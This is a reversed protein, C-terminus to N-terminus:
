FGRRNVGLSRGDAPSRRPFWKRIWWPGCPRIPGSTPGYRECPALGGALGTPRLRSSQGLQERSSAGIAVNGWQQGGAGAGQGDRPQSQGRARTPGPGAGSRARAACRRRGDAGAVRGDGRGAVADRDRGLLRREQAGAEGHGAGDRCGSGAVRDLDILEPRADVRGPHRHRGRGGLGAAREGRGPPRAMGTLHRDSRRDLPGLGRAGGGSGGERDRDVTARGCGEVTGPEVSMPGRASLNEPALRDPHCVPRERAAGGDLDIVVAADDGYGTISRPGYACPALQSRVIAVPRAIPISPVSTIPAVATGDVAVVAAGM